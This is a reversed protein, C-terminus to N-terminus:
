LPTARTVHPHQPLGMPKPKPTRSQARNSRGRLSLPNSAILSRKNNGRLCRLRARNHHFLPRKNLTRLPAMHLTLPLLKPNLRLRYISADASASSLPCFM